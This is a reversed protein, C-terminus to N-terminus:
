EYAESLFSLRQGNKDDTPTTRLRLVSISQGRQLNKDAPAERERTNGSSDDNQWEPVLLREICDLDLKGM